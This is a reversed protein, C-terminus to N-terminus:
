SVARAGGPRRVPLGPRVVNQTQLSSAPNPVSPLFFFFSHHTRSLVSERKTERGRERGHMAAERVLGAWRTM